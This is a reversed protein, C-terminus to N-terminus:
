RIQAPHTIPDADPCQVQPSAGVTNITYAGRNMPCTPLINGKIYGAIDPAIVPDGDGIGNQLSWQTIAGDVVKLNNICTRTYTTQRSTVYYPISLSALVGIVSSVIIIEILTFGKERLKIM